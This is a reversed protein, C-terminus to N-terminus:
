TYKHAELIIGLKQPKQARKCFQSFSSNEEDLRDTRVCQVTGSGSLPNEHFKISSYKKFFFNERSFKVKM